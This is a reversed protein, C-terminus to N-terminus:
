LLNAYVGHTNRRLIWGRNWTETRGDNQGDRSCCGIWFYINMFGNMKVVHILVLRGAELVLGLLDDQKNYIAAISDCCFDYCYTSRQLRGYRDYLQINITLIQIAKFDM